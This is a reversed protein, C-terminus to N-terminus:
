KPQCFVIDKMESVDPPPLMPRLISWILTTTVTYDVALQCIAPSNTSIKM